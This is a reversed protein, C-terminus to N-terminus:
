ALLKGVKRIKKSQKRPNRIRFNFINRHTHQSQFFCSAQCANTSIGQSPCDLSPFQGGQQYGTLCSRLKLHVTSVHFDPCLFSRGGIRLQLFFILLHMLLCRLSMLLLRLSMLGMMLLRYVFEM